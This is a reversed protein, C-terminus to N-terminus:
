HHAVEVPPVAGGGRHHRAIGAHPGRRKWGLRSHRVLVADGACRSRVVLGVREREVAFLWGVSPRHQPVHVVRPVVAFPHLPAAFPLREILGHRHVLYVQATPVTGFGDRIPRDCGPQGLMHVAAAERVDLQQRHHLVRVETRPPVLGGAVERRRASVPRGVVKPKEDVVQMLLADADDEVPYGAMEGFVREGECLEVARVQEFVGVLPEAEVGVPLAQDEVVPAALNSRKKSLEALNQTSWNWASPM